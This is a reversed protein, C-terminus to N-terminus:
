IQAFDIAALENKSLMALYTTDTEFTEFLKIVMYLMPMYALQYYKQNKIVNIAQPTGSSILYGLYSM